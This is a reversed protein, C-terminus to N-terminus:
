RMKEPIANLAALIHVALGRAAESDLESHSTITDQVLALRIDYPSRIITPSAM